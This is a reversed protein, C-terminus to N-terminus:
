EKKKSAKKAATKKATKKTTKASTKKTKKKATKKTKKKATKKPAGKKTAKKKATTEATTHAAERPQNPTPELFRYQKARPKPRSAMASMLGILAALFAVAVVLDSHGLFFLYLQYLILAGFVFVSLGAGWLKRKYLGFLGMIGVLVLGALIVLQITYSELRLIVFITAIISIAEFLLITTKNAGM